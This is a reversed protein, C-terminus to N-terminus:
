NTLGLKRSGIKWFELAIGRSKPNVMLFSLSLLLSVCASLALNLMSHMPILSLWNSILPILCVLLLCPALITSIWWITNQGLAKRWEVGRHQAILGVIFLGVMHICALLCVYPVLGHNKLIYSGVSLIIVLKGIGVFFKTSLKAGALDYAYLLNTHPLAFKAVAAMSVLPLIHEVLETGRLWTGYFFSPRFTILVMALLLIINTFWMSKQLLNRKQSEKGDVQLEAMRPMLVNSVSGSLNAIVTFPTMLLTFYGITALSLFQGLMWKESFATLAGILGIILNFSGLKMLSKWDEPEIKVRLFDKKSPVWVMLAAIVAFVLEVFFLNKFYVVPNGENLLLFIYGGVAIFIQKGNLIVARLLGQQRGNIVGVYCSSFTSFGISVFLYGLCEIATSYSLEGLNSNGLALRSLQPTLLVITALILASFIENIKIVPYEPQGEKLKVAVERSIIPRMASSLVIILQTTAVGLAILGFADEGMLPLYLPLMLFSLLSSVLRGLLGVALNKKVVSM